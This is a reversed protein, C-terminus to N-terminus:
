HALLANNFYPNSEQWDLTKIDKEEIRKVANDEQLEASPSYYSLTLQPQRSMGHVKENLWALFGEKTAVQVQKIKEAQYDYTLPFDIHYQFFDGGRELVDPAQKQLKELSITKFSQFQEETLDRTKEKIAQVLFDSSLRALEQPHRNSQIRTMLNIQGESVAVTAGVIYGLQQNTRLEEFYSSGLMLNLFLGYVDQEMTWDGFTWYQQIGNNPDSGKFVLEIKENQQPWRFLDKEPVFAVTGDDPNGYPAKKNLAEFFSKYIEESQKLTWNGYTFIQLYNENFFDKSYQRLDELQLTELMATQEAISDKKQFLSGALFGLVKYPESVMVNNLRERYRKKINQFQAESVVVESMPASLSSGAFLDHLIPIMQDSYGRLSIKRKKQDFTELAFAYHSNEVEGRWQSLEFGKVMVYLANLVQNRLTNPLSSHIIVDVTARADGLEVDNKNLMVGARESLSVAESTNNSEAVLDFNKPFYAPSHPMAFATWTSSDITVPPLDETTYQVNFHPEIKDGKATSTSLQIQAREFSFFRHVYERFLDPRYDFYLLAKEIVHVGPYRGLLRALGQMISLEPDFRLDQFVLDQAAKSDQFIEPSLGQTKTYEIYNFVKNLISPINKLGVETLSLELTTVEDGQGVNLGLISGEQKLLSSLSGEGEHGLIYTFLDGLKYKWSWHPMTPAQFSIMLKNQDIIPKSVIMKHDNPKYILGTHDKAVLKRNEIREFYRLALQRLEEPKLPSALVVNMLNSSYHGKYFGLIKERDVKELSKLSGIFNRSGPHEPNMFLQSVAQTRWNDSNLNKQYESHVANKEKEIFRPDFTPKDFFASFRSLAGEFAGHSVSFGYNTHTTDTYANTEGGNQSVYNMLEDTNPYEENSIFLVHELFHALGPADTPDDYSGAEVALAAGSKTFRPNSITMIQMDNSLKFVNITSDKVKTEGFDIDEVSEQAYLDFPAKPGSSEALAGDTALTEAGVSPTEVSPPKIEPQDFRPSCAGLNLLIWSSGWILKSLSGGPHWLLTRQFM